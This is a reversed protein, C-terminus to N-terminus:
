RRMQVRLDSLRVPVQFRARPASLVTAEGGLDVVVQWHGWAIGGGRVLIGNEAGEGGKARIKGGFRKLDGRNSDCAGEAAEEGGGSGDSLEEDVM